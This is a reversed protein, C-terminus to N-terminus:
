TWAQCHVLLMERSVQPRTQTDTHERSVQASIRPKRSNIIYMIHGLAHIGVVVNNQYSPPCMTKMIVCINHGNQEQSIQASDSPDSIVVEDSTYVLM